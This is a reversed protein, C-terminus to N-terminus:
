FLKVRTCLEIPTNPLHHNPRRFGSKKLKVSSHWDKIQITNSIAFEEISGDSVVCDIPYNSIGGIVFLRNPYDNQILTVVQLPTIDPPVVYQVDPHLELKPDERICPKVKKLDFLVIHIGSTTPLIIGDIMSYTYGFDYSNSLKKMHMCITSIMEPTYPECFHVSEDRFAKQIDSLILAAYRFDILQLRENSCYSTSSTASQASFQYLDSERLTPNRWLITLDPLEIYSGLVAPFSEIWNLDRQYSKCPWMQIHISTQTRLYGTTNWFLASFIFQSVWDLKLFVWRWESLIESM